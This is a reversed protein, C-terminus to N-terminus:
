WMGGHLAHTCVYKRERVGIKHLKTVHRATRDTNRHTYYLGNSLPQDIGDLAPPLCTPWLGLFFNTYRFDVELNPGKQYIENKGASVKRIHSPPHTQWFGSPPTPPLGGASAM